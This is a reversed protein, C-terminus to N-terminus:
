ACQRGKVQRDPPGILVECMIQLRQTMTMRIRGIAANRANHSLRIIHQTKLDKTLIHIIHTYSKQLSDFKKNQEMTQIRVNYSM